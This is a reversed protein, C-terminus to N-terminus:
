PNESWPIPPPLVARTVAFLEVCREPFKTQSLFRKQGSLVGEELAILAVGEVQRRTYLRRRGNRSEGNYIWTAYPFLQQSEWKYITKVSRGLAAALHSIAFFERLSGEIKKYVPDEDWHTGSPDLATSPHPTGLPRHTGPYVDLPQRQPVIM